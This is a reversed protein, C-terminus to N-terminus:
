EEDYVVFNCYKKYDSHVDAFLNRFQTKFQEIAIDNMPGFTYEIINPPAIGRTYEKKFTLTRLMKDTKDILEDDYHPVRVSLFRNM